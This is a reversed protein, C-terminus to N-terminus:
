YYHTLYTSPEHGGLVLHDNFTVLVFNEVQSDNSNIVMDFVRTVGDKVENINKAMSITDDIVFTVSSKELECLTLPLYVAILYILKNLIMKIKLCCLKTGESRANSIIVIRRHKRM